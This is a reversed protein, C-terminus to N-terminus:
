SCWLLNTGYKRPYTSYRVLVTTSKSKILSHNKVMWARSMMAVYEYLGSLSMIILGLGRVLSVLVSGELIGLRASVLLIDGM